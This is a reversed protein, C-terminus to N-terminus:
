PLLHFALAVPVEVPTTDKSDSEPMSGDQAPIKEASSEDMPKPESLARTGDAQLVDGLAITKLLQEVSGESSLRLFLSDAGVQTIIVSRVGHLSYLYDTVRHYDALNRVGDVVFLTTGGGGAFRDAYRGALYEATGNIGAGIVENVDSSTANWRTNGEDAHLTWQARWAGGSIMYLKGILVSKAQYRRSADIVTDHFDGWVDAFQVKRNDQLDLLPLTIPLARQRSQQVLMQRALGRDSDGVLHRKGSQEIALWVLTAPRIGGWVTLGAKGLLQEIGNRDFRVWLRLPLTKAEKEDENNRYSFQQAYRTPNAYDSPQLAEGLVVSRGSVKVLVQELATKLAETRQEDSQDAVPVEVEYLGDVGEAYAWMSWALLLLLTISHTIKKM